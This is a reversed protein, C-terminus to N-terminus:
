LMHQVLKRASPSVQSWEPTDFRLEEHKIKQALEHPDSARFPPFGVLMIHLIVGTSWVDSNAHKMGSLVEPAACYMQSMAQPSNLFEKTNMAPVLGFDTIKVSGIAFADTNLGQSLYIIEPRLGTHVVKKQLTYHM